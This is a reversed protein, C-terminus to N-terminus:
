YWDIQSFTINETRKKGICNPIFSSWTKDEGCVTVNETERTYGNKCDTTCLSNYKNADTCLASGHEAQLKTSNWPCVIEIQINSCCKSLCKYDNNFTFLLGFPWM